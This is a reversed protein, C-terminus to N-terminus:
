EETKSSERSIYDLESIRKEVTDLRSILGHFANKIETVTNEDRANRKPETKPNGDRHTYEMLTRPMNIVTTQFETDSLEKIKTMGPESVKETEEM